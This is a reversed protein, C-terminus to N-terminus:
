RRWCYSMEVPQLVLIVVIFKRINIIIIFRGPIISSSLKICLIRNYIPQIIILLLDPISQFAYHLEQLIM